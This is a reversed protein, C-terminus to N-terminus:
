LTEARFGSLGSVELCQGACRRSPATHSPCGGAPWALPELTHLELVPFPLSAGFVVQPEVEHCKGPEHYFCVFLYIGFWKNVAIM